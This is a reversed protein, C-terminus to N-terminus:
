LRSNYIIFIFFFVINKLSFSFLSLFLYGCTQTSGGLPNKTVLRLEECEKPLFCDANNALKRESAAKRYVQCPLQLSSAKFVILTLKRRFKLDLILKSVSVHQYNRTNVSDLDLFFQESRMCDSAKGYNSLLFFCKDM